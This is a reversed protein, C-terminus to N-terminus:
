ETMFINQYLMQMTKAKHFLAGILLASPMTSPMAAEVMGCSEPTVSFHQKTCSLVHRSRLRGSPVTNLISCVTFNLLQYLLLDAM